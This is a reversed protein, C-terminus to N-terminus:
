AKRRKQLWKRENIEKLRNVEKVMYDFNQSRNVVLKHLQIDAQEFIRFENFPTDNSQTM